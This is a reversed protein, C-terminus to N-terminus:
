SFTAAFLDFAALAVQAAAKRAEALKVRTTTHKALVDAVTKVDAYISRPVSVGYLMKTAKM